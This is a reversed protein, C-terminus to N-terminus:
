KSGSSFVGVAVSDCHIMIIISDNWQSQCVQLCCQLIHKATSIAMVWVHCRFESRKAAQVHNPTHTRHLCGRGFIRQASCAMSILKWKKVGTAIHSSGRAPRQLAQALALVKLLLNAVDKPVWSIGGECAAESVKCFFYIATRVYCRTSGSRRKAVRNPPPGQPM